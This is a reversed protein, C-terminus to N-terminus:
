EDTGKVEAAAGVPDPLFRRKFTRMFRFVLARVSLPNFAEIDFVYRVRDAWERKYSIDGPLFDLEKIGRAM